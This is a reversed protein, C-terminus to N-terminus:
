DIKLMEVGDTPISYLPQNDYYSTIENMFINKSRGLKFIIKPPNTELRTITHSGIINRTRDWIRGNAYNRLGFKIAYNVIPDVDSENLNDFLLIDNKVLCYRLILIDSYEWHGKSEPIYERRYIAKDMKEIKLQFLIGNQNYEWLGVYQDRENHTDLAYNGRKSNYEYEEGNYLSTTSFVPPLKQSVLNQCMTLFLMIIFMKM